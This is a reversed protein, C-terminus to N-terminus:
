NVTPPDRDNGNSEQLFIKSQYAFHQVHYNLTKFDLSFTIFVQSLTLNLVSFCLKFSVNDRSPKSLGENNRRRLSNPRLVFLIVAAIMM